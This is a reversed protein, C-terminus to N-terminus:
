EVILIKDSYPLWHSGSVANKGCAECPYNEADPETDGHRWEGCQLCVGSYSSDLEKLDELSLKIM